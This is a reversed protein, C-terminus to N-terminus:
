SIGCALQLCCAHTTSREFLMATPGSSTPCIAFFLPCCASPRARKGSQRTSSVDSLSSGRTTVFAMPLPRRDCRGIDVNKQSMKFVACEIDLSCTSLNASLISPSKWVNDRLGPPRWLTTADAFDFAFAFACGLAEAQITIYAFFLWALYLLTTWLMVLCLCVLCRLACCLMAVCLTSLCHLADPFWSHHQTSGRGSNRKVLEPPLEPRQRHM